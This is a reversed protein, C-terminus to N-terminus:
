SKSISYGLACIAKLSEIATKRDYEKESETLDDYSVLGPHERKADDRNPGWSWGESMRRRAWVEHTNRALLETLELINLPLVISSTDIPKPTYTLKSGEM